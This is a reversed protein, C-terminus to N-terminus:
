CFLDEPVLLPYKQTDLAANSSNACIRVKGTAKKVDVIPAVWASYNVPQLVGDRQLRDLEQDVATLGAYPLPRKLKFAPKANPQLRLTVNIPKCCGLGDQFVPAFKAQLTSTLKAALQNSKARSPWTSQVSNCIHKLPLELLSLKEIWDLGILDLKPLKTLYCTGKFQTGDFSVDCKLEDTLRLFGGSVNMAKKDSTIMPPRGIIQWTSRSILSIDSATDFQLRVSKGNITVTLYKRRAEFETKFGALISHSTLGSYSSPCNSRKAKRGDARSKLSQGAPCHDEKHGRKHCKYCVHKKLPCFRVFNWDGCQWCALPPKRLTPDQLKQPSTSKMRTVAQVSNAAFSSSLQFILCKFQDDTLERLKFREFERNVTSALTLLDDTENKVLKLCQYRIREHEKHGFKRLLLHVKWADDAKAFEVHFIYEWPKFWADFTVSSDPYYTFETISAAAADASTSQKALSDPDAFHLSFKQMMYELMKM